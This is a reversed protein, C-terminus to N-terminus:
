LLLQESVTLFAYQLLQSTDGVRKSGNKIVCSSNNLVIFGFNSHLQSAM